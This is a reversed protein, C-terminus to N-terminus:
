VRKVPIITKSKDEKCFQSIMVKKIVLYEYEYFILHMKAVTLANYRVYVGIMNENSSETTLAVAEWCKSHLQM